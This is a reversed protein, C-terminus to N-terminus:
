NWAAGRRLEVIKPREGAAAAAERQAQRAAYVHDLIRCGAAELEDLTLPAKVVILGGDETQGCFLLGDTDIYVGPKPIM